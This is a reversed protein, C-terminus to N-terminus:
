HQSSDSVSEGQAAQLRFLRDMVASRYKMSYWSRWGTLVTLGLGVLFLSDKSTLGSEFYPANLFIVLVPPGCMILTQSVFLMQLIHQTHEQAAKSLYFMAVQQEAESLSARLETCFYQYYATVQDQHQAVMSLAGLSLFPLLVLLSVVFNQSGPADVKEFGKEFGFGLLTGTAALNAIM